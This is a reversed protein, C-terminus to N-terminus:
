LSKQTSGPSFVFKGKKYLKGIPEPNRMDQTNNTKSKMQESSQNNETTFEKIIGGSGDNALASFDVMAVGKKSVSKIPRRSFSNGIILPNDCYFNIGLLDQGYETLDENLVSEGTNINNMQNKM